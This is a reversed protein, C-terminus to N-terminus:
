AHRNGEAWAAARCWTLPASSHSADVGARAVCRVGTETARARHADRAIASCPQPHCARRCTQDDVPTGSAPRRDYAEPHPPSVTTILTVRAGRASAADALAFGMKGSSRNGIFRVPDIPERTGGATVVVHRGQLDQEPYPMDERQSM